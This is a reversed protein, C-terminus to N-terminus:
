TPLRTGCNRWVSCDQPKMAITAGALFVHNIQSAPDWLLWPVLGWIASICLQLATMRSFWPRVAEYDVKGKTSTEYFTVVNSALFMTIAVVCPLLIAEALPRRGLYGFSDSSLWALALAWLPSTYRTSLVAAVILDLQASLVRVDASRRVRLEHGFGM